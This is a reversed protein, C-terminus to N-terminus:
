RGRSEAKEEKLENDSNKQNEKEEGKEKPRYKEAEKILGDYKDNLATLEKNYETKISELKKTFQATTMKQSHNPNKSEEIKQKGEQTNWVSGGKEFKDQAAEERTMGKSSKQAEKFEDKAKSQESLLQQHAEKQDIRDTIKNKMATYTSKMLGPQKQQIVSSNNQSSKGFISKSMNYASRGINKAGWKATVAAAAYTAALIETAIQDLAAFEKSHKDYFQNSHEKAANTINSYTSKFDDWGTGMAKADTKEMIWSDARSLFGDKLEAAANKAVLSDMNTEVKIDDLKAAAEEPSLKENIKYGDKSETVVGEKKLEQLHAKILGIGNGIKETMTGNKYSDEFAKEPSITGGSKLQENIEKLLSKGVEKNVQTRNVVQDVPFVKERTSDKGNFKQTFEITVTKNVLDAGIVRGMETGTSRPFVKDGVTFKQGDIDFEKAM